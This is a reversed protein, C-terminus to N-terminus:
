TTMSESIASIQIYDLTQTYIEALPGTLIKEARRASAPGILIKEARNADGEGPRERRALLASFIKVPGTLSSPSVLLPSLIMSMKRGIQNSLPTSLHILIDMDTGDSCKRQEPM